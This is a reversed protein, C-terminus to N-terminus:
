ITKNSTIFKYLFHIVISGFGGFIWFAMTIGLIPMGCNAGNPDMKPYFLPPFLFLHSLFVIGFVISKGYKSNKKDIIYYSLVQLLSILLIFLLIM